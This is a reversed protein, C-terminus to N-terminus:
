AHIESGASDSQEAVEGCYQDLGGGFREGYSEDEVLLYGRFMRLFVTYPGCVHLDIDRQAAREYSIRGYQPHEYFLRAQEGVVVDRFWECGMCTYIRRNEAFGSKKM